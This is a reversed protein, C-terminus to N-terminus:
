AALNAVDPEHSRDHAAELCQLILDNVEASHTLPAMHDFDPFVRRQAQRYEALMRDSITGIADPSRGGCLLTLPGEYTRCRPTWYGSTLEAFDRLVTGAQAALKGRKTEPLTDWAGPAAWYSMFPAMVDAGERGAVAHRLDDLDRPLLPGTAGTSPPVVPDFLVVSRVLGPWTNAIFMAIAAGFSHAVLDFPEAIREVISHMVQARDCRAAHGTLIGYGPIDPAIVQRTGILADELARWQRGASASGHIALLTAPPTDFDKM